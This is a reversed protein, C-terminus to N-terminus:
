NVLEVRVNEVIYQLAREVGATEPHRVIVFGEGEYSIAAAQGVRPAKVDTVTDGLEALVEQLGHVAKVRGGGLGRLFANGVAYKRAKPPTFEGFIMLRCWASYMDYDHARNIMTVIQAGPPRGGVESICVSGDGRRFWELHSLGTQMGLAKLAARGHKRIDKYADGDAEKPLVIRWQIWPNNMVDLPTPEYRTLSHFLPKGDLSITEFSHEVGTVFEEIQLPHAESVGRSHLLQRLNRSTEVRYTSQAAAGDVPKVCVPFGCEQVFAWAEDESTVLRSRACPVNHKRFLDKMVAKDRFNRAVEASAGPIGLRDRVEAIPVQIQENVALLREVRGNRAALESVAWSLQDPSLADAVRWHAVRVRLDHPLFEAPEQGVVGVRVGPLATMAYLFRLSGENFFPTAFIVFM